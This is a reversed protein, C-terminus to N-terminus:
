PDLRSQFCIPRFDHRVMELIGSVEQKMKMYSTENEYLLSLQLFRHERESCQFHPKAGAWAATLESFLSRLGPHAPSSIIARFPRSKKNLIM